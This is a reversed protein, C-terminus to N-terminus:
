TEVSIVNGCSLMDLYREKSRRSKVVVSVLEEMLKVNKKELEKAKEEHKNVEDFREESKHLDPCYKGYGCNKRTCLRVRFNDKHYYMENKTHCHTCKDRKECNNPHKYKKNVYVKNCMASDYNCITPNRRRELENHYHLCKQNKCEETNPCKTTRFSSLSFEKQTLSKSQTINPFESKIISSQDHIISIDSISSANVLPVEANIRLKKLIAPIDRLDNAGHAKPCREGLKLCKYGNETEYQCMGGKYTLPHYEMEFQNHSHRCSDLNCSERGCKM